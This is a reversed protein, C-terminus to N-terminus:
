EKKDTRCESLISYIKAKELVYRECLDKVAYKSYDRRICEADPDGADYEIRKLTYKLRRLKQFLQELTMGSEWFRQKIQAAEELRDIHVIAAYERM